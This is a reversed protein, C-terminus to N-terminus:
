TTWYGQDDRAWNIFLQLRAAWWDLFAVEPGRDFELEQHCMFSSKYRGCPESIQGMNTFNLGDM